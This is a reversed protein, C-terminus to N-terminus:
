GHHGGKRPARKRKKGTVDPKSVTMFPRGDPRVIRSAQANALPVIKEQWIKGFEVAIVDAVDPRESQTSIQFSGDEPNVAMVFIFPTSLAQKMQVTNVALAGMWSSEGRELEDLLEAGDKPKIEDNM